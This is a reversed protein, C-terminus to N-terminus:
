APMCRIPKLKPPETLIQSLLDCSDSSWLIDVSRDIGFQIPDDGDNALFFIYSSKIEVSAETTTATGAFTRPTRGSTNGEKLLARLTATNGGSLTRYSLKFLDVRVDEIFEGVFLNIAENNFTLEVDHPGDNIIHNIYSTTLEQFALTDTVSASFSVPREGTSQSM